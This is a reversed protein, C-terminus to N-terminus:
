SNCKNALYEGTKQYINNLEVIFSLFDKDKETFHKKTELKLYDDSSSLNNKKLFFDIKHEKREPSSSKVLKSLIKRVMNM